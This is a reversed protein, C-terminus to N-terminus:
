KVPGSGDYRWIPAGGCSYAAKGWKFNDPDLTTQLKMWSAHGDAMVYNAGGLHRDDSIYCIHHHGVATEVKALEIERKAVDYDLAYIGLDSPATTKATADVPMQQAAGYNEGDFVFEQDTSPSYLCIANTPRHTKLADYWTPSSDLLSNLVGTNEALLITDSPNDVRDERVVNQPINRYKKRPMLMENPIYCIRPVQIDMADPNVSSNVSQLSVQGDPPYIPPTTFCTPAWGNQEHSPCIFVDVNKVYEQIFGSWNVYGNNANGTGNPLQNQYYYTMPYTGDYDDCYMMLALGLQKTNSLCTIKRASERARAFVPFLMSALIAIIAIVVLLEILTFGRTRRM